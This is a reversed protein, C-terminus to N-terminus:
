VRGYPLLFVNIFLLLSLGASIMCYFCYDKIIFIQLGTLFVSFALGAATAYFLITKVMAGNASTIVPLLALVLVLVYFFLGLYENRVGFTTNWKSETVVTCDHDMPCVLAKNKRHQNALYGANFSGMLALVLFTAVFIM